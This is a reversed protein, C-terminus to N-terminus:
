AQGDTVDIFITRDSGLPLRALSTVLKLTWLHLSRVKLYISHATQCTRGPPHPWPLAGFHYSFEALRALCTVACFGCWFIPWLRLICSHVICSSTPPPFPGGSARLIQTGWLTTYLILIVKKGMSRHVFNMMTVSDDYVTSTFSIMQWFQVKSEIFVNFIDLARQIKGQMLFPVQKPGAPPLITGWILM